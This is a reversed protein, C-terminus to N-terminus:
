WRKWASGAFWLPPVGAFLLLLWFPVSIEWYLGTNTLRPQLYKPRSPYQNLGHKLSTPYASIGAHNALIVHLHHPFTAILCDHRFVSTHLEDRCVFARVYTAATAVCLLLSLAALM